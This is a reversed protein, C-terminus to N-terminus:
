SKGKKQVKAEVQSVLAFAARLRVPQELLPRGDPWTIGMMSQCSM